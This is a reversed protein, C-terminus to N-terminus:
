SARSFSLDDVNIDSNSEHMSIFYLCSLDGSADMEEGLVRDSRLNCKQILIDYGRPITIDVIFTSIGGTIGGVLYNAKWVHAWIFVCQTTFSITLLIYLMIITIRLFTNHSRKRPSFITWLTVTIIGTYLGHLLAGLIIRNLNQDLEDFIDRREDQSLNPPPTKLETLYIENDWTEFHGGFLSCTSMVLNWVCVNKVKDIDKLSFPLTWLIQVLISKLTPGENNNVFMFAVASMVGYFVGDDVNQVRLRHAMVRPTIRAIDAESAYLVPIPEDTIKPGDMDMAAGWSIEDIVDFFKHLPVLRPSLHIAM